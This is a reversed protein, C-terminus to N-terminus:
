RAVAPEAPSDGPERTSEDRHAVVLEDITLVRKPWMVKAVQPSLTVSGACISRTDGDAVIEGEALVVVRDATAAVFEVDHTAVVVAIGQVALGRLLGRLHDKMTYDLGRTPEDLAVVAPRSSLQIALVLGLRQGESLDAPAQAPDLDLGLQQLLAATTGAPVDSERDAQDCEEGVTPLYLLDAPTQPVLAVLSRARAASVSRPDDRDVIIDGTSALAGQLAWLLSSKGSGNRGMLATVTGAALALDIHDLATLAGYAVTVGTMRAVPDTSQSDSPPSSSPARGDEDVSIIIRERAVQRRASRVSRPTKEWGLRHALAALPPTIDAHTLITPPDGIEAISGPDTNSRHLWVVTDAVDMVRELRHEAIVVTLGAEHVLSVISALVDHAATPDLASTPEDLVLVRPQAALVAAIAVRQQQGGSLEALARRRLPAIGMLDLAEEVRTRMATPAVGLQEMGYAIEDEVRDTVFGALPNQAVYGVVTALDPPRHSRTDLGGVSVRGSMEAGTFWPVLGNIAGLFTSKGTGTRGVVLCLDGEPITLSIPGLVARGEYGITVDDFTIM